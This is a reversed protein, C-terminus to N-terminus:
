VNYNEGFILTGDFLVDVYWQNGEVNDYSKYILYGDEIQLGAGTSVSGFKVSTIQTSTLIDNIIEVKFVETCTAQSIKLDQSVKITIVGNFYKPLKLLKTTVTGASSRNTTIVTYKLKGIELITKANTTIFADIDQISDSVISEVYSYGAGYTDAEILKSCNGFYVNGGIYINQAYVGIDSNRIIMGDANLHTGKRTNLGNKFDILTNANLCMTHVDNNLMSECAIGWDNNTAKNEAMFVNSTIVPSQETLYHNTYLRAGYRKCGAFVNGTIVTTETGDEIHLGENQSVESVNGVCTINKGEAIGIAMDANPYLGDKGDANLFNNAIISNKFRIDYNHRYENLETAPNKTNDIEFSNIEIADNGSEIRSNSVLLNKSNTSGTNVLISYSSTNITSNLLRVDKVNSTSINIFHKTKDIELGDLFLSSRPSFCYYQPEVIFHANHDAKISKDGFVNTDTITYQGKPVYVSNIDNGIALKLADDWTNEDTKFMQPTVFGDTKSKALFANDVTDQWNNPLDAVANEAKNAANQANVAAANAAIVAQYSGLVPIKDWSGDKNKVRMTSM